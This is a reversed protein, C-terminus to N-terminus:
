MGYFNEKLLHSHIRNIHKVFEIVSQNGKVWNCRKCCSVVNNIVYGFKSDVRDIGNYRYESIHIKGSSYRRIKKVIQNPEMGCYHCNGDLLEKFQEEILEFPLDRSKASRKYQILLSNIAPMGVPHRFRCGCSKLNQIHHQQVERTEGCLNCKVKWITHGRPIVRVMDLVTFVGVVEGIAYQAKNGICGCSNSVGHEFSQKDVSRITGCDCKCILKTYTGHFSADRELVTWRGFKKGILDQWRSDGTKM